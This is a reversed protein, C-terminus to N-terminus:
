GRALERDLDSMDVEFSNRQMSALALLFDTRSLGAVQAAVEQSIRTQEYWSMAAALRMEQPFDEPACRLAAFVAEPFELTLTKM